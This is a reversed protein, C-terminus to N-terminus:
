NGSIFIDQATKYGLVAIKEKDEVDYETFFDGYLIELNSISAYDPQVGAVTFSTEEDLEGGDVLGSGSALLSASEVNPVLSLIDEVDEETLTEGEDAMQPGGRGSSIGRGLGSPM